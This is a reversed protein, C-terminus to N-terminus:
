AMEDIILGVTDLLRSGVVSMKKPPIEKVVENTNTDVFQVHIIGLARKEVRIRLEINLSETVDNLQKAIKEIEEDSLKDSEGVVKLNNKAQEFVQRAQEIEVPKAAPRLKEVNFGNDIPGANTNKLSTIEM